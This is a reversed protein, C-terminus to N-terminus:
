GQEWVLGLLILLGGLSNNLKTLCKYNMDGGDRPFKTIGKISFRQPRWGLYKDGVAKSHSICSDRVRTDDSGSVLLTGTSNWAIANVCGQHGQHSLSLTHTDQSPLLVFM